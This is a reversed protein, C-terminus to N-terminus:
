VSLAKKINRYKSTTIISRKSHILWKRNVIIPSYHPPLRVEFESISLLHVLPDVGYVLKHLKKWDNALKWTPNEM